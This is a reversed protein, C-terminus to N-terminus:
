AAAGVEAVACLGFVEVNGNVVGVAVDEVFKCVEVALCGGGPHRDVVEGGGQAGCYSDGQYFALGVGYYEPGVAVSRYFLAGFECAGEGESRGISGHLNVVGFENAVAVSGVGEEGSHGNGSVASGM